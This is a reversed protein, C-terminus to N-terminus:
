LQQFASALAPSPFCAQFELDILLLCGATLRLSSAKRHSANSVVFTPSEGQEPPGARSSSCQFLHPGPWLFSGPPCWDRTDRHPRRKMDDGGRRRTEEVPPQLPATDQRCASCVQRVVQSDTREVPNQSPTSCPCLLRLDPPLPVSIEM